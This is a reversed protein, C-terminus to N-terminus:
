VSIPVDVWAGPRTLAPAVIPIILVTLTRIGASTTTWAQREVFLHYQSPSLETSQLLSLPAPTTIKGPLLM